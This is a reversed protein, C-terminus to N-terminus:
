TLLVRCNARNTTRIQGNVGPLGLTEAVAPAMAFSGYGCDPKVTCLGIQAPSICSDGGTRWRMFPAKFNCLVAQLYKWM